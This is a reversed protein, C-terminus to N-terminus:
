FLSIIILISAILFFLGVFLMHLNDKKKKEFYVDEKDNPNVHLKITDGIRPINKEVYGPLGVTYVDSGMIYEYIPQYFEKKTNPNKLLDVVKADVVLSHIKLMARVNLIEFITAIIVMLAMSMSIFFTISEFKPLIDTKYLYMASLLSSGISIFLVGLKNNNLCNVLGYIIVGISGVIAANSLSNRCFFIGLITALGVVFGANELIKKKM